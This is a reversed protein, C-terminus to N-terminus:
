RTESAPVLQADGKAARPDDNPDEEPSVYRVQARIALPPASPWTFSVDPRVAGDRHLISRASAWASFGMTRPARNLRSAAPTTM